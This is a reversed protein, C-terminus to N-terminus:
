YRGLRYRHASAIYGSKGANLNRREEAGSHLKM